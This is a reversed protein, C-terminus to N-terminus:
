TRVFSDPEPRGFRKYVALSGTFADPHKQFHDVWSLYPNEEDSLVFELFTQYRLIDQDPNRVPLASPLGLAARYRQEAVVCSSHLFPRHWDAPNDADFQGIIFKRVTNLTEMFLKAQWYKFLCANWAEEYSSAPLRLTEREIEQDAKFLDFVRAKLQGTVGGMARLGTPDPSPEPEMVIVQYNALWLTRDCLMTRVAKSRNDTNEIEAVDSMLRQVLEALGERSMNQRLPIVELLVRMREAALDSLPVASAAADNRGLLRGWFSM